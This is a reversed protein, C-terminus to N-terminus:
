LGFIAIINVFLTHMSFDLLTADAARGGWTRM